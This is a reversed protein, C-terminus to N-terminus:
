LEVGLATLVAKVVTSQEIATTLKAKLADYRENSQELGKAAEDLRNLLALRETYRARILGKLANLESRKM